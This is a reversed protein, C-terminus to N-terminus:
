NENSNEHKGRDKLIEDDTKDEPIEIEKQGKKKTRFTKNYQIEGGNILLVNWAIAANVYELVTRERIGMVSILKHVMSKRTDVPNNIIFDIFTIWHYRNIGDGSHSGVHLRRLVEEIESM